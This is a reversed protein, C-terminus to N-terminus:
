VYMVFVCIDAEFVRVFALLTGFPLLAVVAEPLLISTTIIIMMTITTTITTTITINVAVFRRRSRTEEQV